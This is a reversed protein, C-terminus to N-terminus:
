PTDAAHRSIGLAWMVLPVQLPLRAYMAARYTAARGGADLAMQVNAPFVLVFLGATAWGALRRTRPIGLAVACALEAVGSAYVLPYPAPLQPPITRAYPKPAVLHLTGTVGLLGALVYPSAARWRSTRGHRTLARM